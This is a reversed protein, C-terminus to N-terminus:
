ECIWRSVKLEGVLRIVDELALGPNIGGMGDARL